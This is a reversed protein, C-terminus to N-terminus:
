LTFTVILLSQNCFLLSYVIALKLLIIVQGTICWVNPKRSSSPVPLCSHKTTQTHVVVTPGKGSSKEIALRSLTLFKLLVSKGESPMSLDHDVVLRSTVLAPPNAWTSSVSVVTSHEELFNNGADPSDALEVPFSMFRRCFLPASASLSEDGSTREPRMEGAFHHLQFSDLSILLLRPTRHVARHKEEPLVILFRKDEWVLPSIQKPSFPLFVTRSVDLHDLSVFSVFGGPANYFEWETEQIDTDGGDRFIKRKRQCVGEGCVAVYDFASACMVPKNGISILNRTTPDITSDFHSLNIFAPIFDHEGSEMKDESQIRNSERGEDVLFKKDEGRKHKRADNGFQSILITYDPASLPSMRTNLRSLLEQGFFFLSSNPTDHARDNGDEHGGSAGVLKLADFVHVKGDNSLFFVLLNGIDVGPRKTGSRNDQMTLAGPTGELRPSGAMGLSLFELTDLADSIRRDSHCGNNWRRCLALSQIGLRNRDIPRDEKKRARGGSSLPEVLAASPWRLVKSLLIQTEGETCSTATGSSGGGSAESEGNGGVLSEVDDDAADSEGSCFATVELLLVDGVTPRCRHPSSDEKRDAGDPSAMISITLVRDIDDATEESQRLKDGDSNGRGDDEVIGLNDAEASTLRASASAIPVMGTLLEEDDAAGVGGGGSSPLVSPAGPAPRHLEPRKWKYQWPTQNRTRPGDTGHEESHQRHRNLTSSDM